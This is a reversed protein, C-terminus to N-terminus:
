QVFQFQKGAAGNHNIFKLQQACRCQPPPLHRSMICLKLFRLNTQKLMIPTQLIMASGHHLIRIYNIRGKLLWSLLFVM